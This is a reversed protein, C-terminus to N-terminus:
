ARPRPSGGLAERTKELLALAGPLGWREVAEALLALLQPSLEGKPAELALLALAEGWRMARERLAPTEEPLLLVLRREELRLHGGAQAIEALVRSLEPM